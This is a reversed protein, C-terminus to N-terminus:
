GKVKSRRTETPAAEIIKRASVQELLEMLSSVPEPM